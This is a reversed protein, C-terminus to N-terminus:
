RPLNELTINLLNFFEHIDEKQTTLPPLLRVINEAAPVVLLGNKLATEVIFTNEVECKLGLM